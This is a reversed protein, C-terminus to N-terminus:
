LQEVVGMSKDKTWLALLKGKETSYRGLASYKELVECKVEDGDLPRGEQVRKKASKLQNLFNQGQKGLAEPESQSAEEAALVSKKPSKKGGGSQRKSFSSAESKAATKVKPAM